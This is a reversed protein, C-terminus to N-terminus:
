LNLLIEVRGGVGEVIRPIVRELIDTTQPIEGGQILIVNIGVEQIERAKAVITEEELVYKANDVANDRRMPCFICNVRCKNTVEIVGRVVVQDQFTAARVTRAASFLKEDSLARGSLIEVIDNKTM